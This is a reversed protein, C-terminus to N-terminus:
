SPPRYVIGDRKAPSEEGTNGSFELVETGTWVRLPRSRERRPPPPLQHCRGTAPDYALGVPVDLILSGTWVAASTDLDCAHAMVTWTDTAPDYRGDRPGWRVDSGYSAFVFEEGTWVPVGALFSLPGISPEGWTDTTLDLPTVTFTGEPDTHPSTLAFVEEGTWYLAFAHEMGPMALPDAEIPIPPLGSWTDTAPDYAATALDGGSAVVIVGDAWVSGDISGMPAPATTRWSDAAPDYVALGRGDAGRREVFVLESGTWYAPSYTGVKWPPRAIARWTDTAPDYAAARRKQQPDVVILESGTWGGPAGVAGFPARAMRRWAGGLVTAEDAETPGIYEVDVMPGYRDQLIARAREEDEARLLGVLVRNAKVSAGASVLQIDGDLLWDTELMDETIRDQKNRMEKITFEARQVDFDVGDPMVEAIAARAAALEDTFRFVPIGGREQDIYVDAYGDLTRAFERAPESQWVIDRRRDLEAAEAPTLPIGRSMDSYTERDAFSDRVVAMSSPLAFDRRFTQAEDFERESQAGAPVAFVLLALMAVPVVGAMWGHIRV